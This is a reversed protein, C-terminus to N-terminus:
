IDLELVVGVLVLEGLGEELVVEVVSLLEDDLGVVLALISCRYTM